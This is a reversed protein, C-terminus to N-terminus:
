SFHRMSLFPSNLRPCPLLITSCDPLGLESESMTGHRPLGGEGESERSWWRKDVDSRDMMGDFWNLSTSCYGDYWRDGRGEWWVANRAYIQDTLSPVTSYQVWSLTIRHPPKMDDSTLPPPCLQSPVAWVMMGDKEKSRKSGEYTMTDKMHQKGKLPMWEAVDWAAYNWKHVGCSMGGMATVAALEAAVQVRIHGHINILISSM